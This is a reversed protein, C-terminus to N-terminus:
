AGINGRLGAFRGFLRILSLASTAGCGLDVVVQWWSDVQHRGLIKLLPEQVNPHEVLVGEVQILDVPQLEAERGRVWDTRKSAGM